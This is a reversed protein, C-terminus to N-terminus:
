KVKRKQEQIFRLQNVLCEKYGLYYIFDFNPKNCNMKYQKELKELERELHAEILYYKM